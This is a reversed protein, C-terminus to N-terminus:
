TSLNADGDIQMIHRIYELIQMAWRLSGMDLSPDLVHHHHHHHHNEELYPNRGGLLHGHGKYISNYNNIGVHREAM